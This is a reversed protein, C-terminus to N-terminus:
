VGGDAGNDLVSVLVADIKVGGRAAEAAGREVRSHDASAYGHHLPEQQHTCSVFRNTRRRYLIAPALLVRPWLGYKAIPTIRLDPIQIRIEVAPNTIIPLKVETQVTSARPKNTSAPTM